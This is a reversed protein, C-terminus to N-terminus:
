LESNFICIACMLPGWLSPYEPYIRTIDITDFLTIMIDGITDLDLPSMM